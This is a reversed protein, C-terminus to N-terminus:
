RLGRSPRDRGTPNVRKISMSAGERVCRSPISTLSWTLRFSSAEHVEVVPLMPVITSDIEQVLLYSSELGIKQAGCIPMVGLGKMQEAGDMADTLHERKDNEVLDVVDPSKGANL